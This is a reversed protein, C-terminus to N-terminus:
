LLVLSRVHLTACPHLLHMSVSREASSESSCLYYVSEAAARLESAPELAMALSSAISGGSAGGTVHEVVCQM